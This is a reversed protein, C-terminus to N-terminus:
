TKKLDDDELSQASRRVNGEEEVEAVERRTTASATREEAHIEKRVRVEEKVVPRKKIEIEEEMVPVSIEEEEGFAGRAEQSGSAVPVREVIVEERTVPVTVQKEETIVDKRVRVEGAERARRQVELEEEALPIRREESRDGTTGRAIVPTELAAEGTITSTNAEEEALAPRERLQERSLLLTIEDGQVSAVEGYRVFYNKPFFLGKEITFMETACDAVKGLKEGDASRVAMGPKVREGQAM